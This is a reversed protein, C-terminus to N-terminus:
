ISRQILAKLMMMIEDTQHLVNAALISEFYGVKQCIEIQTALEACSGKAIHFFNKTDRPTSRQKGEAINSPISVACRRMQLAIGFKEENPLHKTANYIQVCLDMSKQWVILGRHTQSGHM